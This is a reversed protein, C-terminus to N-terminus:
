AGDLGHREKRVFYGAPDELYELADKLSLYHEREMASLLEFFAKENESRAGRALEAYAQAGKAEFECARRLASIDDEDARGASSRAEEILGRVRQMVRGAALGAEVGDPWAGREKWLGHIRELRTMHELEDEAITAFMTKGLHNTTRGAQALYFGRESKENELAAMLADM